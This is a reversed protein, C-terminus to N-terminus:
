NMYQIHVTYKVCCAHYLTCTCAYTCHKDVHVPLDNVTHSNQSETKYTNRKLVMVVGLSTIVAVKVGCLLGINRYVALPSYYVYMYIYMYMYM